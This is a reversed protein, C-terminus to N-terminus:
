EGTLEVITCIEPLVLAHGELYKRLRPLLHPNALHRCNWTLLISARNRAALVVHVADPFVAPPLIGADLIGQALRIAEADTMVMTIDNLADRRRKSM